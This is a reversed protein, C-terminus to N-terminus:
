VEEFDGPKWGGNFAVAEPGYIRFYSFWGKGPETKIWQKEHGPPATPGFYLESAGAKSTGQLEVM